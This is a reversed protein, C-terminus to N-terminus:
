MQKADVVTGLDSTNKEVLEATATVEVTQDVSGIELALDITLSEGVYVRVGNQVLKRFGKAEVVINYNGFPLGGFAYGPGAPPPM